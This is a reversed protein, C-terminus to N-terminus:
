PALCFSAYKSNVDEGDLAHDANDENDDLNQMQIPPLKKNAHSGQGKGGGRLPANPAKGRAANNHQKTPAPTLALHHKQSHPPEQSTNNITDQLLKGIDQLSLSPQGDTCGYESPLIRTYTTCDDEQSLHAKNTQEQHQQSYASSQMLTNSVDHLLAAWERRLCNTAGPMTYPATLYSLFSVLESPTLTLIQSPMVPAGQSHSWRHM